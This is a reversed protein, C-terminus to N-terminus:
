FYPFAEMWRYFNWLIVRDHLFILPHILQGMICQICPPQNFQFQMSPIVGPSGCLSRRHSGKLYAAFHTPTMVPHPVMPWGCIWIRALIKSLEGACSHQSPPCSGVSFKSRSKMQHLCFHYAFYLNPQVQKWDYVGPRVSLSPVAGLFRQDSCCVFFFDGIYDGLVKCTSVCPSSYFLFSGFVYCFPVIFCFKGLWSSLGFVHIQRIKKVLDWQVLM